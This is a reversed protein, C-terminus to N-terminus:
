GTEEWPFFPKWSAIELVVPAFKNTHWLVDDVSWYFFHSSSGDKNEKRGQKGSKTYLVILDDAKVRQDPFWFAHTIKSYVDNDKAPARFIAYDGLDIDKAALLVIREGDLEGSDRIRRLTLNM